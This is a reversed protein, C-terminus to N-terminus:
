NRSPYPAQHTQRSERAASFLEGQPALDAPQLASMIRYIDDLLFATIHQDHLSYVYEMAADKMAESVIVRRLQQAPRGAFRALNALSENELWGSLDSVSAEQPKVAEHPQNHM